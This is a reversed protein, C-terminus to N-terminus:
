RRLLPLYVKSPARAPTTTTTATRTATATSTATATRTATATNTATSTPTNTPTSTPTNTPTNTPTSTPTNTPTPTSTALPPEAGIASCLGGNFNYGTDGNAWLTAMSSIGDVTPHINDSSADIPDITNIEDQNSPISFYNYFQPGVFVRQPNTKLGAPENTNVLNQIVTNYARTQSRRTQADTTNGDNRWPLRAIYVRLNNFDSQRLANVLAKLDTSYKTTDVTSAGLGGADNTGIMLLVQGAGLTDIQGRYAAQKVLANGIGTNPSQGTSDRGTRLGSIGSNLLFVPSNLCATLRDNLEIQYGGYQRNTYNNPNGADPASSNDMQPYNRGDASVPIDGGPSPPSTIPFGAAGTNLYWGWKGATISDGITVFIHGYAVQGIEDFTGSPAGNVLLTASAVYEARRTFSFLASYGDAGNTDDITQSYGPGSVSFRVGSFNAPPNSVAARLRLDSWTQIYPIQFTDGTTLTGPTTGSRSPLNADVVLLGAENVDTRDVVNSGSLRQIRLAVAAGNDPTILTFSRAAPDSSQPLLHLYQLDLQGTAADWGALYDVGEMLTIGNRRVGVQPGPWGQVSFRPQRVIGAPPVITLSSGGGADTQITNLEDLTGTGAQGGGAAAPQIEDATWANLYLMWTQVAADGETSTSLTQLTTGVNTDPRLQLDASLLPSGRLEIAIQGGAWITYTLAFPQGAAQGSWRLVAKVPSARELSLAGSILSGDLTSRLEFLRGEPAVLNTARDADQQLDYWASIGAADFTLAFRDASEVTILPGDPGAQTAVQLGPPAPPQAAAPRQMDIALMGVLLAALGFVVWFRLSLQAMRM